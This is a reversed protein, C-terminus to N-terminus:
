ESVWSWLSFLQNRVASWITGTVEAQAQAAAAVQRLDLVYDLEKGEEQEPEEDDQENLKAPALGVRNSEAEPIEVGAEEYARLRNKFSEIEDLQENDLAFDLDSCWLENVKKQTTYYVYGTAEEIGWPELIEDGYKEQFRKLAAQTVEDYVGNVTVGNEGEVTQLFYQLKSVDNTNNEGDVAIYTFLLQECAREEIVDDEVIEVYAKAVPTDTRTGMNKTYDPHRDYGSIFAENMYVGPKSEGHFFADYSVVIVEDAKIVDLGWRQEHIPMGLPDYITDILLAHYVPDGRNEIVITYEITSSAHIEDESASKTISLKSPGLRLAGGASPMTAVSIMDGNNSTDADPEIAHAYFTTTISKGSGVSNTLCVPLNRVLSRGPKIDGMIVRRSGDQQEVMQKIDQEATNYIGNLMVGSAVADGLNNVTIEYEFCSGPHLRSAELARVGVWLDPQGFQVNGDWDGFINFIALVWNRGLINGNVVNVITAAATADGTSVAASGSESEAKNEGTLAYVSVNNNVTANNVNDVSLYDTSGGAGTTTRGDFFIEIGDGTDRWSMGEPLGFVNGTWDGHVRFLLSLSNGIVSTNVRNVVTAGAASDGTVVLSDDGEATNNGSDAVVTGTNTVSASNTSDIFNTSNTTISSGQELLDYFWDAGPFVVNSAGPEYGNVTLLLYSSDTINTNVVNVINAAAFADGTAIYAGEDGAATNGGTSATVSIDNEVIADNTNSITLSTGDETCVDDDLSCGGEPAEEGTLVSFINRTDISLNGMLLNLFYFLGHSNFINTNVVNIVNAVATAEGTEISAEATAAAENEGTEAAVDAATEQTADNENEVVIESEDPETSTTDNTNTESEGDLFADADGTEIVANGDIPEVGEDAADAPTETDPETSGVDGDEGEAPPESTTTEVQEVETTGQEQADADHVAFMLAAMFMGLLLVGVKYATQNSYHQYYM